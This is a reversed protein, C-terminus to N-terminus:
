EPVGTPPQDPQEDDAAKVRDAEVWEYYQEGVDVHYQVLALWPGGPVDQRWQRLWGRYWAGDREVTVPRHPNLPRHDPWRPDM